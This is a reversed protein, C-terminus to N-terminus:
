RQPLSLRDIADRRRHAPRRDYRATTAPSAHGVIEQTTALDVGADLLQGIFTRRFDHPTVTSNGPLRRALLDAIAQGSMPALRGSRRRLNGSKNIPTFMAGAGTGRVGIWNELRHQADHNLHVLRQKNGKGLVTLSRERADYDTFNLAVIESRRCGTSCLVALIAADRRGAATADADCAEFLDCLISDPIHRGRPLRSSKVSEVEAAKRYDDASMLDLMWAARLVRRLAVLHKNIYAPSWGKETMAAQIATTHQYRLLHWPQGAGTATPDDSMLQAMRDLCGRMTRRSEASSLTDLYARYPDAGATNEPDRPTPLELEM